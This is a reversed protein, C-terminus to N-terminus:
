KREAAYEPHTVSHKVHIFNKPLKLPFYRPELHNKEEQFDLQMM